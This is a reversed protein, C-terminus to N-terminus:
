CWDDHGDLLVLFEDVVAAGEAALSARDIREGPDDPGFSLLASWSAECRERERLGGWGLAVVLMCLGYGARGRRPSHDDVRRQSDRDGNVKTARKAEKGNSTKQEEQERSENVETMAM